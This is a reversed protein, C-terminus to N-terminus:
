QYQVRVEKIKIETDEASLCGSAKRNDQLAEIVIRYIEGVENGTATVPLWTRDEEDGAEGQVQIEVREGATLRVNTITLWIEEVQAM